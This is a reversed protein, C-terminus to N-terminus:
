QVTATSAPMSELMTTARLAAHHSRKARYMRQDARALLEEANKGDDPFQACGISASLDTSGIVRRGAEIVLARLQVAREELMERSIRPLIMVFEDGGMRGVYDYERCSQRLTVAIAQLLRNGVMHGFVDNVQKFGNLDLVLTGLTAQERAARMLETDLHVFLSRANPLETLGDTVASAQAQQFERANEITVGAKSSVALLVRLHDRSFADPQAHYLTLVGLIGDLGELPVAVASRLTAFAAPDDLYGSEVSPNGNLIPKRNEAVWGSLGEGMRISLSSFLRADTGSVYEPKLKDGNQLYVAITDYPIMSKLRSALLSLTDAMSLSNGLDRTVEHLM